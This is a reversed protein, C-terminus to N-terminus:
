DVKLMDVQWVSRGYYKQVEEPPFEGYPYIMFLPGKDRPSMLKGNLRLALVTDHRLADDFPIEAAYDNIAVATIRTGGAGAAALVDRLLPGRFSVKRPYWPTDVALTTQPLAELMRMDFPTDKGRSSVTLVTKGMPLVEAAPASAPEWLPVSVLAAAALLVSALAALPLHRRMGSVLSVRM